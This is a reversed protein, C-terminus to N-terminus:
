IVKVVDQVEMVYYEKGEIENVFACVDNFLVQDGDKLLHTSSHRVIGKTTSKEDKLQIIVSKKKIDMEAEVFLYNNCMAIQSDRIVCYIVEYDILWKDPPIEPARDLSLYHFYVKEGKKLDRFDSEMIGYQRAHEETHYSTDLWITLTGHTLTDNTQSDARIIARKVSKM